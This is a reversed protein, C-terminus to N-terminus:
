IGYYIYPAWYFPAKYEEGFKGSIFDRKVKALSHIFTNGDSVYKYFQDMFISTSTDEVQWLSVCVGNAGAVMFASTLGVVGEGEHIKGLGTECASLNVLTAKM